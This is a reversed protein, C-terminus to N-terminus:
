SSKAQLDFTARAQEIIELNQEAWVWVGCFAAGLGLGLDTLRYEVKPPIVPHVTRIVLGEREMQRLTQTLMKQSIGAVKKALQTFRLEGNEALVELIFMTWKDAVRGIVENVLAEVRPDQKTESSLKRQVESHKAVDISM